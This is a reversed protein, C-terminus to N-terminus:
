RVEGNKGELLLPGIIPRMVTSRVRGGCGTTRVRDAQSYPSIFLM